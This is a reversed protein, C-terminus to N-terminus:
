QPLNHLKSDHNIIALIEQLQYETLRAVLLVPAPEMFVNEGANHKDAVYLKLNNKM